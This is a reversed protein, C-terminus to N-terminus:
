RMQTTKYDTKHFIIYIFLITVVILIIGVVYQRTSIYQTIKECRDNACEVFIKALGEAM